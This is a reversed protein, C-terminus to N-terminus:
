RGESRLSPTPCPLDQTLTPSSPVSSRGLLSSSLSHRPRRARGEGPLRCQCPHQMDPQRESKKTARHTEVRRRTERGESM